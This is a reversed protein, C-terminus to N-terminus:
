LDHEWLTVEVIVLILVAMGSIVVELEKQGLPYSGCYCPNLSGRLPAKEKLDKYAWLTVEVIVLILVLRGIMGTQVIM